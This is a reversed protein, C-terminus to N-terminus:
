MKQTIEENTVGHRKAQVMARRAAPEEGLRRLLRGLELWGDGVTPWHATLDELYLRALELEGRERRGQAAYYLAVPNCPDINLIQECLELSEDTVCKQRSEEWVQLCSHIWLDFTNSTLAQRAVAQFGDALRPALRLSPDVFSDTVERVAMPLVMGKMPVIRRSGFLLNRIRRGVRKFAADSVYIRFREGERSASEIRKACNITVGQMLLRGKRRSTWVPGVHVGAALEASAMGSAIREANLQTGLWACKIAIALCILQYVDNAPKGTSLFVALEDGVFRSQFHEEEKYKGSHVVDFFHNVQERCTVEFSDVYRAYERLSLVSAFESSSVLDLFLVATERAAGESEAPETPM